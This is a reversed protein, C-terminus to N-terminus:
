PWGAYPCSRVNGQAGAPKVGADCEFYIVNFYPCAVELRDNYGPRGKKLIIRIEGDGGTVKKLIPCYDTTRSPTGVISRSQSPSLARAVEQKQQETLNTKLKEILQLLDNSMKNNISILEAM